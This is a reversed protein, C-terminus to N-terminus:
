AQRRAAFAKRQRFKILWTAIGLLFFAGAATGWFGLGWFDFGPIVTFEFIGTQTPLSVTGFGLLERIASFALLMPIFPLVPIFSGNKLSGFDISVLIIFSFATLYVYLGLSVSLIPCLWQLALTFLTASAAIGVMEIYPGADGTRLKRVLERIGLGTLLFWLFAVTLVIGYSLRVAAPVLPCLAFLFAVTNNKM